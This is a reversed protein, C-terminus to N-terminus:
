FYTISIMTQLNQARFVFRRRDKEANAVVNNKGSKKRPFYVIVVVEAVLEARHTPVRTNEAQRSSEPVTSLHLL